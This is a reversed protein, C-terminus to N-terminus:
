GGSGESQSQIARRAEKLQGKLQSRENRLSMNEAELSSVRARLRIKQRRDWVIKILGLPVVATLSVNALLNLDVNTDEGAILAAVAIVAIPVTVWPWKDIRAVSRVTKAEIKAIEVDRDSRGKPGKAGV